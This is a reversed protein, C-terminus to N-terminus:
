KLLEFYVSESLQFWVPV